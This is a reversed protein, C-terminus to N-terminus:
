YRPHCNMSRLGLSLRDAPVRKDRERVKLTKSFSHKTFNCVVSLAATKRLCKRYYIQLCKRCYLQLRCFTTCNKEPMEQLLTASMTSCNQESMEQLLPASSMTSCSKESMEQLLTLTCYSNPWPTILKYGYISITNTVGVTKFSAVGETVNCWLLWYLGVGNV